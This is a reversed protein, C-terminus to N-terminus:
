VAFCNLTSINNNIDNRTIIKSYLFIVTGITPLHIRVRNRYNKETDKDPPTSRHQPNSTTTENPPNANGDIMDSETNSFSTSAGVVLSQKSSSLSPMGGGCVVVTPSEPRSQSRSGKHVVISPVSFVFAFILELHGIDKLLIDVESEELM